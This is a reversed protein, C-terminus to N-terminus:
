VDLEHDAPELLTSCLLAFYLLTSCLLAFYLLTCCFYRLPVCELPSPGEYCLGEGEPPPGGGEEVTKKVPTM